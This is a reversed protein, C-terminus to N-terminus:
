KHAYKDQVALLAKKLFVVNSAQLIDFASLNGALAIQLSQINNASRRIVFDNDDLVVLTKGSLKLTHL